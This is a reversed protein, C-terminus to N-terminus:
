KGEVDVIGDDETNERAFMWTDYDPLLTKADTEAFDREIDDWRQRLQQLVRVATFVAEQLPYTAQAHAIIPQVDKWAKAATVFGELECKLLLLIGGRLGTSPEFSSPGDDRLRPPLESLLQQSIQSTSEPLSTPLFTDVADTMAVVAMDFRATEPITKWRALVCQRLLLAETSIVVNQPLYARLCDLTGLVDPFHKVCNSELSGLSTAVEFKLIATSPFKSLSTMM